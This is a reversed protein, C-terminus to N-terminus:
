FRLSVSVAQRNQSLVPAVILRAGSSGTSASSGSRFVLQETPIMASIGLGIGSGLGGYVLAMGTYAAPGCGYECLAQAFLVGVGAGVGFGWLAGTRLQAHDHRTVAEVDREAFLRNDGALSLSTDTLGALKRKIRHGSADTVTVIDGLRVLLRLQDFSTAAIDQAAARWPCAFVLVCMVSMCALRPAKMM